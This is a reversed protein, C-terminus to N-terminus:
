FPNIWNLFRALWGPKTFYNEQGRGKYTVHFAGMKASSVTNTFTIDSPRVIGSVAVVQRDGAIERTRKGIVVLSGNPLVDEVTVTIQDLVSRDSDYNASGDFNTSSKSGLNLKPFDFVHKGVPGVVNALDLTGGTEASRSTDKNMSRTTENEIVSREDIIVTLTDGVKRATDDTFPAKKSRRAKAWISGAEAIATASLAAALAVIILRAPRSM